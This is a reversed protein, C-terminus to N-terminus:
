QTKFERWHITSTQSSRPWTIFTLKSVARPTQPIAWSLPAWSTMTVNWVISECQWFRPSTKAALKIPDPQAGDDNDATHTYFNVGPTDTWLGTPNLVDRVVADYPRNEHLQDSLWDVFRHRRYIVFPGQDTGVMARSFREALNDYTRQDGLLHAGGIWANNTQM